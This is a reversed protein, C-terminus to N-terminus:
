KVKAWVMDDLYKGDKIKNKRLIGELKFGSNELVKASAKNFTRCWGSIRKLKYKKFAYNTVLKVAKSTIGRGRFNPHLCYGITAKHEHYKKNLDHLNIWGACQGDIEIVFMESSPKKKKDERLQKKISERIEEVNKPTTFFGKKSQEDTEAEFFSEADSLLPHRLIFEKSKIITKM